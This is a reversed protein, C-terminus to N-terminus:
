ISPICHHPFCGLTRENPSLISCLLSWGDLLWWLTTFAASSSDCPMWDLEVSIINFHFRFSCNLPFMFSQLCVCVCVNSSNLSTGSPCPFNLLSMEYLAKCVTVSNPNFAIFAMSLKHLPYRSSLSLQSCNLFFM